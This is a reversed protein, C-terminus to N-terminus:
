KHGSYMNAPTVCRLGLLPLSSTASSHSWNFKSEPLINRFPNRECDHPVLIRATHNIFHHFYLLNMPNELLLPPLPEFSKSIKIPVPKAYYGDSEFAMDNERTRVTGYPTESDLQLADSAPSFIAIARLDENRPTDLDPLGLDYGYITYDEKEIPYQRGKPASYSAESTTGLLSHVSLRRSDAQSFPEALQRSTSRSPPDESGASSNPTLPMTAVHSVYPTPPGTQPSYASITVRSETSCSRQHRARFSDGLATNPRSIGMTQSNGRSPPPMSPPSDASASPYNGTGFGPSEFTFEGPSPYDIGTRSQRAGVPSAPQGQYYQTRSPFDLPEELSPLSTPQLTSMDMLGPDILSTNSSAVSTASQTRSHRAVKARSPPTDSPGAQNLPSYTSEFFM